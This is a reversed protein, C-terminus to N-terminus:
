LGTDEETALFSEPYFAAWAFWYIRMSKVRPLTRGRLRGEVAEGDPNWRSRTQHDFITGDSFGFTLERGAVEPEFLNVNALKPDHFSVLRTMGREFNIVKQEVAAELPFAIAPEGSAPVIVVDKPKLRQDTNLLPLYSGGKQYYTNKRLYSGYPDRTYDANVLAGGSLVRAQPFATRAKDWTTWEVPFSELVNGTMPGELALGTLPLWLSGTARDYILRLSNVYKGTTGFGTRRGDVSGEFGRVLGCLPSYVVVARREDFELNAIEHHVMIRQPLIATRGGAHEGDIVFVVDEPELTLGADAMSIYQPNEIARPVDRGTEADIIAEEYPNGAFEQQAPLPDPALSLFVALASPASVAAIITLIIPLPRKV